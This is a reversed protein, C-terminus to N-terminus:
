ITKSMAKAHKNLEGVSTNLVQISDPLDIIGEHIANVAKSLYSVSKSLEDDFQNFTHELGRHMDDTFQNMSTALHKNVSTFSESTTEWVESLHQIRNDMDALQSILQNNLDMVVNGVDTKEKLILNMSANLEKQLTLQTDTNENMSDVINSLEHNSQTSLNLSELFSEFIQEQSVYISDVKELNRDLKHNLDLQKKTQVVFTSAQDNMQKSYTEFYHSFENREDALVQLLSNINLHSENYKALTDNMLTINKDMVSEYSTFKDTYGHMKETLSTTTEAMKSQERATNEMSLVLSSMEEQVKQQWEITTSLAEGLNKMHDGTVENLSSVFNDVMMGVGDLQTEQSKNIMEHMMTQTQELQPAITQHIADTMGTVMKPIMMETIFSQFDLMQKEQNSLMQFLVVNQEQTPFIEDLQQRVDFFSESLKPYFTMKDLFQWLVSLIIGAISSLFKVKMGSLLVEIGGRMSEADGGPNLESVGVAIGLFTGVIGMSLFLGPITEVLKRKGVKQMLNEEIFYDYIDPVLMIGKKQNEVMKGNFALFSPRVFKKIFFSQETDKLWEELAKAKVLVPDEKNLQSLFDQLKIVDRKAHLYPM